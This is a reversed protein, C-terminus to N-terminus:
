VQRSGKKGKVNSGRRTKGGFSINHSMMMRTLIATTLNAIDDLIKSALLQSVERSPVDYHPLMEYLSVLIDSTIKRRIAYDAEHNEIFLGGVRDLNFNNVLDHVETDTSDLIVGQYADLLLSCKHPELNGRYVENLQGIRNAKDRLLLDVVKAYDVHRALKQYNVLEVGQKGYNLTEYVLGSLSVELGGVTSMSTGRKTSVSINDGSIFVLISGNSIGTGVSGVERAVKAMSYGKNLKAFIVEIGLVQYALFTFSKREGWFSNRVFDSDKSWCFLNALFLAKDSFQADKSFKSPEIGSRQVVSIAVQNGTIVGM